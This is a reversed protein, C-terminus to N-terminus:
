LVVVSAGRYIDANCRVRRVNVLLRDAIAYLIDSTVDLLLPRDCRRTSLQIAPHLCAERIQEEQM